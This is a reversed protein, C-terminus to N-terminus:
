KYSIEVNKEYISQITLKLCEYAMNIDYSYVIYRNFVLEIEDKNSSYILSTNPHLPSFFGQPIKNCNLTYIAVINEITPEVYSISIKQIEKNEYKVAFIEITEEPQYIYKIDVKIRKTAYFVIVIILCFLGIIIKLIKKMQMVVFLIIYM